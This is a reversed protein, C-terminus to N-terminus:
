IHLITQAAIKQIIKLIRHDWYLRGGIHRVRELLSEGHALGIQMPEILGEIINRPSAGGLTHEFLDDFHRARTVRILRDHPLKFFRNLLVRKHRVRTAVQNAGVCTNPVEMGHLARQQIVQLAKLM